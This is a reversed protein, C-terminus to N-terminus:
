KNIYKLAGSPCSDIIHREEDADGKDVQIWPKQNLNFVKGDGHVCKAAHKCVEKNFYINLEKGCYEKYGLKTLEEKTKDHNNM